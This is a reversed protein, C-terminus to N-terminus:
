LDSSAFRQPVLLGSSNRADERTRTCVKRQSKEDMMDGPELSALAFGYTGTSPVRDEPALASISKPKRATSTPV